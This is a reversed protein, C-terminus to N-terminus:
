KELKRKAAGYAVAGAAAVAITIVFPANNVIVGTIPTGEKKNLVGAENKKEGVLVGTTTNVGNGDSTVTWKPAEYGDAKTYDDESVNYTTGVLVHKFTVSEANAATFTITRTAKGEATVAKASDNVTAKSGAKPTATIDNLVDEASKGDPLVSPATFTITFQFQKDTQGQKGTVTKTITLDTKNQDDDTYETYSNEFDLKTVKTAKSGDSKNGAIDSVVGEYAYVNALQVKGDKNEYQAIVTYTKQDYQMGKVTTKTETVTWAYTGPKSVGTITLASDDTNDTSTWTTKDTNEIALQPNGESQTPLTKEGTTTNIDLTAGAITFGFNDTYTSGANLNLTKTVAYGGDTGPTVPDALAAVPSLAMVLSLGAAIAGASKKGFKM